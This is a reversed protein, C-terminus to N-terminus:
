SNGEDGRDYGAAFAAVVTADLAAVAAQVRVDQRLATEAQMCQRQQNAATKAQHCETRARADFVVSVQWQGGFALDVAGRLLQLTEPRQCQNLLFENGVGLRLERGSCGAVVMSDVLSADAPRSWQDHIVRHIQRLEGDTVLPPAAVPATPRLTAKLEPTSLPQPQQQQQQQPQPQPQPQPQQALFGGGGQPGPRPPAVPPPMAGSGGSGAPRQLVRGGAALLAEVRAALEGVDVLAPARCLRVAGLELVLRPYRAKAATEALELLVHSLRELNADSVKDCMQRLTDIETDSRDVLQKAQEGSLRVLLLDRSELAMTRALTRLDLGHDNAAGIAVLAGHADRALLSRLLLHMRGRDAVGLLEAVGDADLHDGGFAIVQDLLSLSDRMSGDGERAVLYLSDQDCAVNESQCIEALRKVVDQAKVRRFDYRQCRSRITVPLKQPDTTALVFVVHAPPEELTKLFANAAQETLMHAEDVIYVKYRDRQPAYGVGSRLERIQDIGRNSAADLEHVDVSTGAAIESCAACVGCPHDTPGSVCNLMKAIIRATSTKGTGRAGCFLMAHPIRQMALANSLARAIHDQGVLQALTAPRYKRALVLYAM